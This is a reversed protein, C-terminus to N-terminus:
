DDEKEIKKVNLTLLMARLKGRAASTPTTHGLLSQGPRAFELHPAITKVYAIRLRGKDVADLLVADRGAQDHGLSQTWRTPTKQDRAITLLRLYTEKFAMRAGIRDGDELLHLCAGWAQAMEATWVVSQSEDFPMAAWAEEVGPRGDDIRAIIAAVNFPRGDLEKRCRTLAALVAREEYGDLDQALMAAAGPSYAKGCLEATVAIAKILNETIPM